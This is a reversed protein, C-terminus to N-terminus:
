GKNSKRRSFSKSSKNSKPIPKPTEETLVRRNPSTEPETAELPMEDVTPMELPVRKPVVRVEVPPAPPADPVEVLLNPAYRRYNEGMFVDGPRVRGHGPIFVMGAEPNLKFSAM